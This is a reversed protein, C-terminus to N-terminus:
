IYEIWGGKMICLIGLIDLLDILHQHNVHNINRCNKECRANMIDIFSNVHRLLPVIAQDQENDGYMEVM